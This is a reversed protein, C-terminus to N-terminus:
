EAVSEADDAHRGSALCLDAGEEALRRAHGASAVPREPSSRSM